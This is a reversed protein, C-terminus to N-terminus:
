KVQFLEKETWQDTRGATATRIRGVTEAEIPPAKETWERRVFTLIGAIKQDDLAQYMGPMELAGERNFAEGGITIPGRLGYLVLRVLRDDSFDLWESDLLAPGKGADGYGAPHHCSACLAMYETRGLDYLAQHKASLPPPMPLPKGDKGPWVLATAVTNAAKALRPDSSARLKELAEPATPLAIAKPSPAKGKPAAKPPASTLGELLATQRWANKDSQENLLHFFRLIALPQRQRWLDGAIAGLLKERWPESKDWGPQSLRAALFESERGAFGALYSELVASNSAAEKLAPELARDAFPSNILGLTFVLQMRVDKNSDKALEALEQVITPDPNKLVVSRCMNIASCRMHADSDALLTLLFDTKVKNLGELTWLAKLRALPDPDTSAMKELAPVISIDKSQVLLQQAMDRHWGNSHGLYAVLEAPKLKGIAVPKRPQSTEHVVRFIRGMGRPQELGRDIIQKRLFPTVFTKHQIVGRYMDVIYLVGDPSNYLNVPRFREDTSALFEAKDYYNKSYKKGKEEVFVNRRVLNGAPECIFVDGYTDKPLNDGRFIVPGCNATPEQLTGDERLVKPLYGRNVGPNMRIPWVFQEKYLTVNTLPSRVHANPFYCPVLDGRILTGNANYYLRGYDDQTMGWQGRPITAERIWKDGVRRFRIGEKGNYVWNDLAPMLGNLAHEPNGQSFDCIYTKEDCKGTNKTDRCFWVKSNECLLLGDTTWCLARPLVLKDLWVSSTDMVGDGDKDELVTITGIPEKEGKADVNPMYGRMECVWIRGFPDFCMAVPDHVLPESAVLEIRYGPAVKFTKMEEQPSLAPAAPITLKKLIEDGQGSDAKKQGEVVDPSFLPFAIVVLLPVCCVIGRSM